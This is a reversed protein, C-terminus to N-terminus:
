KKDVQKPRDLSEADAQVAASGVAGGRRATMVAAAEPHDYPLLAGAAAESASHHVVPPLTLLTGFSPIASPVTSSSSLPRPRMELTHSLEEIYRALTRAQNAASGYMGRLLFVSKARSISPDSAREVDLAIDRLAKAIHQPNSPDFERGFSTVARPM